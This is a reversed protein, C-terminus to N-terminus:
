EYELGFEVMATYNGEEITKNEINDKKGKLYAQFTLTNEGPLLTYTVAQKNVPMPTIVGGQTSDLGIAIGKAQGKIKLFGLIDPDEDGLLSIKVDKGLTLDCEMLKLKFPIPVTVPDASHIYFFDSERSQLDVEQSENEPAIICPDEVLEGHFIADTPPAESEASNRFNKHNYTANEAANVGQSIFSIVGAICFFLSIISKYPRVFTVKNM